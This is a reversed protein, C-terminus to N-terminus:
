PNLNIDQINVEADSSTQVYWDLLTLIELVPEPAREGLCHILTDFDRDDLWFATVGMADILKFRRRPFHERRIRSLETCMTAQLVQSCEDRAVEMTATVRDGIRHMEQDLPTARLYVHRYEMRGEGPPTTIAVIRVGEKWERDDIISWGYLDSYSEAVYCDGATDFRMM